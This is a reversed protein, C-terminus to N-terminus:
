SSLANSRRSWRLKARKSQEEPTPHYIVTKFLAIREPTMARKLSKSLAKKACKPSCHVPRATEILQGCESCHHPKRRERQAIAALPRIKKIRSKLKDRAKASLIKTPQPEGSVILHRRKGFKVLAVKSFRESLEDSIIRERKFMYAMERVQSAPLGHKKLLHQSLSVWGGKGCLWCQQQAIYDRIVDPSPDVGSLAEMQKSKM